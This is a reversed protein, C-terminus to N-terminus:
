ETESLNPRRGIAKRAVEPTILYPGETTDRWAQHMIETDGGTLVFSLTGFFLGMSTSIAKAPLFIVNGVSVGVAVGAKEITTDEAHLLSPATGVLVLALTLLASLTGIRRTM